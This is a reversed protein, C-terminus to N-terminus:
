LIISHPNYKGAAALGEALHEKARALSAAHAKSMLESSQALSEAKSLFGEPNSHMLTELVPQGIGKGMAAGAALSSLAATAKQKNSLQSIPTRLGSM